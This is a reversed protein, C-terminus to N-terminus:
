PAASAGSPYPSSICNPCPAPNPIAGFGSKQSWWPLELTGGIWTANAAEALKNLAGEVPVQDFRLLLYDRMVSGTPRIRVGVEKGLAELVVASSACPHSFTVTKPQQALVLAAVLM